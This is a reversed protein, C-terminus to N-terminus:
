EETQAAPVIAGNRLHTLLTGAVISATEARLIQSGLSIVSSASGVASTEVLQLERASWGGEPGVVVLRESGDLNRGGPEATVTGGSKGLVADAALVGTITPLRVRRSQMSAERAVRELREINRESKSDNWRVVSHDSHLLVINDVGLETLKQTALEPRAGKVLVFAVGVEYRPTDVTMIEGDPEVPDGFRCSRWRGAGDSATILDGPRTRLVKALHHRDDEAVEVTDLDDVFVHPGGAGDPGALRSPEGSM